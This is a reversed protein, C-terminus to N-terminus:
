FAHRLQQYATGVGFQLDYLRKREDADQIPLRHIMEFASLLAGHARKPTLQQEVFQFLRQTQAKKQLIIETRVVSRKETLAYSWKDGKRKREGAHKGKGNFERFHSVFREHTSDGGDRDWAMAPYDQFRDFWCGVCLM